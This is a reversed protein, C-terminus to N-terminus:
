LRHSSNLRTSKRDPSLSSPDQLNEGTTLREESGTGDALKWYVNRFGARTGRYTVRKGDPTWMPFQSSSAESALRTLTGRTLDFIWTDWANSLIDVAAQRGDPSLALSQYSRPPAPLPEVEGKRDVWVLRREYQHPATPIYALSGASSSALQAGLVGTTELVGEAITIPVSGTVMLRAPDFPLALLTGARWYM